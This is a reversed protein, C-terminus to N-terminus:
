WTRCCLFCKKLLTLVFIYSVDEYTSKILRINLPGATPRVGDSLTRRSCDVRNGACCQCAFVASGEALCSSLFVVWHAWRKSCFEFFSTSAM